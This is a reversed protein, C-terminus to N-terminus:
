TNMTLNRDRMNEPRPPVGWRRYPPLTSGALAEPKPQFTLLDPTIGSGVTMTRIFSVSNILAVPRGCIARVRSRTTM